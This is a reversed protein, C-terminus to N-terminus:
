SRVLGMDDMASIGSTARSPATRTARHSGDFTCVLSTCAVTFAAIPATAAIATRNQTGTAGENDTVTLTVPYLGPTDYTHTVIPGEPSAGDGLAWVYRAVTGDRDSSTSGDFRCAVGDCTVSFQASPRNNPEITHSLSTSAGSDDSITLTATYRNGTPYVHIATAGSGATGDGFDWAYSTISGDLDASSRADFTCTHAGCGAGFSAIPPFNGSGTRWAPSGGRAATTVDGTGDVNMVAVDILPAVPYMYYLAVEAAIRAGDPSWSPYEAATGARLQRVGSGDANMLAIEAVLWVDGDGTISITGYRETAFAITGGDPSWAVDSDRGPVTTLRTVTSGDVTVTCIDTNGSAIICNFAITSGDPAWAPRGTNALNGTLRAVGSGDANM